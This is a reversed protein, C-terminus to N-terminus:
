ANGSILMVKSKAHNLPLNNANAWNDVQTASSSLKENQQQVNKLDSSAILTTDGAFLDIDTYDYLPLDNIFTLFLVPGLMSGQPIGENIPMM